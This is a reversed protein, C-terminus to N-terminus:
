RYICRVYVAFFAGAAAKWFIRFRREFWLGLGEREAGERGLGEVKRRVKFLYEGSVLGFLSLVVVQLCIGAIIARNGHDLLAQDDQQAAAALSGGVAQVVLCSVDAPLFFLPYWKPAVRSLSPDLALATHKLTLYIAACLITPALIIVCIQLQFGDRHWPNDNLLIRGAYGIDKLMTERYLRAAIDKPTELPSFGPPPFAGMVELVCGIGVAASFTWTRGRVGAWITALFLAAFAATFFASAGLNPAYGLVTAEVPCFLSVDECTRFAAGLDSPEGDAM